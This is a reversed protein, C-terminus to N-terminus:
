APTAVSVAHVGFYFRGGDTFEAEDSIPLGLAPSRRRSRRRAPELRRLDAAPTRAPGIALLAGGIPSQTDRADVLDRATAAIFM